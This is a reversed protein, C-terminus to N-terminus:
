LVPLRKKFRPPGYLVSVMVPATSHITSLTNTGHPLLACLAAEAGFRRLCARSQDCITSAQRDLAYRVGTLIELLAPPRLKHAAEWRAIRCRYRQRNVFVVDIAPDLTPDCLPGNRVRTRPRQLPHEQLALGSRV